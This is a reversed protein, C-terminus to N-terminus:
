GCNGQSLKSLTAFCNAMNWGFEVIPLSFFAQCPTDEECFPLAPRAMVVFGISPFVATKGSLFDMRYNRCYAPPTQSKLRLLDLKTKAPYNLISQATREGLLLWYSRDSWRPCGYGVYLCLAPKKAVLVQSVTHSKIQYSVYISRRAPWSPPWSHLCYTQTAQPWACWPWTICFPVCPLTTTWPVLLDAVWLSYSHM